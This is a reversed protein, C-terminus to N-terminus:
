HGKGPKHLAREAPANGPTFGTARKHLTACLGKIVSDSLPAHGGKVVAAQINTICRDFDGPTGWIIRAAGPGTTWYRKLRETSAVDKPTLERGAAM